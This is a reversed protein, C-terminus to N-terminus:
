RHEVYDKLRDHEDKKSQLGLRPGEGGADDLTVFHEGTREDTLPEGGRSELFMQNFERQFGQDSGNTTTQRGSGGFRLGPMSIIRKAEGWCKPCLETHAALASMKLATSWRVGCCGYEYAPM